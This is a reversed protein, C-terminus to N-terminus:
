PELGTRDLSGSAIQKGDPSFSVSHIDDVHLKLTLTQAEIQGAFSVLFLHALCTASRMPSTWLLQSNMM